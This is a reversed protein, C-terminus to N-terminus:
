QIKIVKKNTNDVAVMRAKEIRDLEIYFNGNYFDVDRCYDDIISDSAVGLYIGIIMGDVFEVDKMYIFYDDSSNLLTNGRMDMVDFQNGGISKLQVSMGRRLM